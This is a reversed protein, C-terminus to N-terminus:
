NGGFVDGLLAARLGALRETEAACADVARDFRALDDLMSKQDETAVEPFPMRGLSTRNIKVM